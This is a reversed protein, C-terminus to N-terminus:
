RGSAPPVNQNLRFLNDPDYQAKVAALREWTAAPYAAQVGDLGEDGVFNVYAGTEGQDLMAVVEDVWQQRRPRDDPGAYFAAVNVMIPSTRHAYATADAPIRAIAGGLVRLQVARLQADTSALASVIKGALDHDVSRMFMTRAVALPRYGEEGEEAPFMDPYAMPRLMDALPTALARFPAFIADAEDMPGSWIMMGMIVISGHHEEPVFPMPPCNMVNAITGLEEPAAEAAAIFGAVTEATAPLILMGGAVQGLERLRYTFETAVGFNGGGGRIAWFLDPHNNADATLVQGDATVIEASLLNDITLGDRRSLYGVGGGLTIGGIGVSGTDGFGIGLGHEDVAKGVDLATLGTQARATRARPDVEIARLDRVDIVIGGDTTSHGASSHGGSRVALEAGSERAFAIARAVDAADAARVIASPRGDVDGMLVQRMEDYDADEPTVVRGNLGSLERVEIM